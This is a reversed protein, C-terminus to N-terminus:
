VQKAFAHVDEITWHAKINSIDHEYVGEDRLGSTLFYSDMTPVSPTSLPITFSNDSILPSHAVSPSTGMGSGNALPMNLLSHVSIRPIPFSDNRDSAM